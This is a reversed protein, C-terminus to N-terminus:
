QLQFDGCDRPHRPIELYNQSTGIEGARQEKAEHKVYTQDFIEGLRLQRETPEMEALIALAKDM